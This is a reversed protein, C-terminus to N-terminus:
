LSPTSEEVLCSVVIVKVVNTKYSITLARVQRDSTAKTPVERKGTKAFLAKTTAMAHQKTPCNSTTYVANPCRTNPVSASDICSTPTQANQADKTSGNSIRRFSFRNPPRFKRSDHPAEAGEFFSSSM